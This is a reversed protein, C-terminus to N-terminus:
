GKHKTLWYIMQKRDNKIQIQIKTYNGSFDWDGGRDGMNERCWKLHAVVESPTGKFEFMM